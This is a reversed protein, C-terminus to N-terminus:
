EDLPIEILKHKMHPLFRIGIGNFRLDSLKFRNDNYYEDDDKWNYLSLSFLNISFFYAVDFKKYKEIIQPEYSFNLVVPYDIDIISSNAVNKSKARMLASIGVGVSNMFCLKDNFRYNFDLFHNFFLLSYNTRFKYGNYINIISDRYTTSSYNYLLNSSSTFHQLGIALSYGITFKKKDVYKKGFSRLSLGHSLLNLRNHVIYYDYTSNSNRVIVESKYYYSDKKIAFAKYAISPTFQGQALTSLFIVLSTLLARM